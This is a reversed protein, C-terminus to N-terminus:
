MQWLNTGGWIYRTFHWKLIVLVIATPRMAKKQALIWEPYFFFNGTSFGQYFNCIKNINIKYQQFLLWLCSRSKRGEGLQSNTDSTDSDTFASTHLITEFQWVLSLPLIFSQNNMHLVMQFLSTSEAWDGM